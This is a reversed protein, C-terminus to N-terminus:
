SLCPPGRLPISRPLTSVYHQEVFPPSVETIEFESFFQPSILNAYLTIKVTKSEKELQHSILDVQDHGQLDHSHHGLIHIVKSESDHETNHDHSHGHKHSHEAKTLEAHNEHNHTHHFHPVANHLFTFLFVGLLMLASVRKKHSNVKVM